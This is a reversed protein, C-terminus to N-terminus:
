DAKGSLISQVFRGDIPWTAIVRAQQVEFRGGVLVSALDGPKPTQKDRSLMKRLLDTAAELQHALAAADQANSCRADMRLVYGQDIDPLAVSGPSAPALSFTTGQTNALPSLFAHTGEPLANPNAYVFAPTSIWLAAAPVQPPQSWKAPAVMFIGNDDSSVALALVDPKLMYFSIFRRPDTAPMVCIANRCRGNQAAAYSSLRDWDFRGRVAFYSNGGSFAGAVAELDQRYDFGTADVFGRYDAEESAKSGAVLDLLGGTRLADVDLYVHVSRDQPLCQLLAGADYIRTSQRWELFALVALCVAILAVALQWPKIRSKM